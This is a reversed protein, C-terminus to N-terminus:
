EQLAKTLQADFTEVTAKVSTAMLVKATLEVELLTKDSSARYYPADTYNISLRLMVSGNNQVWIEFRLLALEFWDMEAEYVTEKQADTLSDWHRPNFGTEDAISDLMHEYQLNFEQTMADNIHYTPDCDFRIFETAVFGGLQYPFFGPQPIGYIPGISACGQGEGLDDIVKTQVAKTIAELRNRLKLSVSPDFHTTTQNRLGNM